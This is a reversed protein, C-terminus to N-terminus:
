VQIEIWWRKPSLFCQIFSKQIPWALFISSFFYFIASIHCPNTNAIKLFLFPFLLHRSCAQTIIHANDHSLRSADLAVCTHADKDDLSNPVSSSKKRSSGLDVMAWPNRPRGGVLELTVHVETAKLFTLHLLVLATRIAFTLGQTQLSFSPALCYIMYLYVCHSYM